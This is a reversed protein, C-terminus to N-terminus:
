VVELENGNNAKDDAVVTEGESKIRKLENQVDTSYPSKEIITEISLGGIERLVKMNDILEKDSSPLALTFNVGISDIQDESFSKGKYEGLLKIIRTLREEIGEQMFQQNKQAKMIANSYLIRIAETSVNSINTTGQTITPIQAVTYLTDELSEYLTKFAQSDFSNSKFDFTSGDDLTLGAGVINSPIGDGKLQQGTIVPIGTIHKYYGDFAKSLLDEQNDLLNTWRKLESVGQVDSYESPNSYLIPLGSLNINRGILRIEGGNNDYRTVFQEDYVNYYSIGDFVFSEIFAIMDNNENYVPFGCSSDILKSKIDGKVDIYVYEYVEGYKLARELIKYDLRSYKGKRQVRSLEKVIGEEGTITVDNGVLFSTMFNVIGHAQNLIIKRASYKKGGFEYDPRFKIIHDGELYDKIDEVEKAKQQNYISSSEEIFWYPDNDYKEKVYQELTTM